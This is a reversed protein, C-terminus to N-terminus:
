ISCRTEIVIVPTFRDCTEATLNLPVVALKVMLEPVDTVAATGVPALLPGILRVTGAPVTVLLLLKVTKGAGVREQM